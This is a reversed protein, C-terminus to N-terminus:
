LLPKMLFDLHGKPVDQNVPSAKTVLLLKEHPAATAVAQGSKKRPETPPEKKIAATHLNVPLQAIAM